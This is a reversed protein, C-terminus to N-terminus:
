VMKPRTDGWSLCPSISASRLSPWPTAMTPSPTFSMGARLAASQEMAMAPPLSAAQRTACIVSSSASKSTIGRMTSSPRRTMLLMVRAADRNRTLFIKLRM